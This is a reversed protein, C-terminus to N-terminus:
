RLNIEKIQENIEEERSTPNETQINTQKYAMQQPIQTVFLDPIQTLLCCKNNLYKNYLFVWFVTVHFVWATNYILRKIEFINNQNPSMSPKKNGNQLM